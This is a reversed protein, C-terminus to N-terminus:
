ESAHVDTPPPALTDIPALTEPRFVDEDSGESNADDDGDESADEEKTEEADEEKAADDDKAEEADDDDDKAADDDDDKAADDDHEEQDQSADDNEEEECPSSFAVDLDNKDEEEDDVVLDHPIQLMLSELLASGEMEDRVEITTSFPGGRVTWANIRVVPVRRERGCGVFSWFTHEIVTDQRATICEFDDYMVSVTMGRANLVVLRRPLSQFATM